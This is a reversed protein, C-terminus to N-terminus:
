YSFSLYWTMESESLYEILEKLTQYHQKFDDTNDFKDSNESLFTNIDPLLDLMSSSIFIISEDHYDIVSKFFEFDLSGYNGNLYSYYKEPLEPSITKFEDNDHYGFKKHVDSFYLMLSITYNFGM